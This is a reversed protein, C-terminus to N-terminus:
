WDEKEFQIHNADAVHKIDAMSFPNGCCLIVTQQGSVRELLDKRAVHGPLEPRVTKALAAKPGATDTGKASAEQLDEEEKLPMEFIHRLLNNARGKGMAPNNRDQASPRSVSAIYTFDFKQSAQITLFEEHYGLEQYSRNAHVLTYRVRDTWGQTAKYHLHKIMAAFPALGSGTGIMVVNQFGKARKDLTFDGTIKNFYIIQSDGEPDVQFLSETLRGPTGEEQMELIVYFELYGHQQTEFPASSISYSHAVPGLRQKGSEDLDPVYQPQGDAGIIKKTLRCNERRLAIYQGAEYEPFRAGIDPALRFISLIPSLNHRYMISGVKKDAM